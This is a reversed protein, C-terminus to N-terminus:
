FNRRMLGGNNNNTIPNNSNLGAPTFLGGNDNSSFTTVSESDVGFLCAKFDDPDTRAWCLISEDGSGMGVIGHLMQNKTLSVNCARYNNTMKGGYPCTKIGQRSTSPEFVGGPCYQNNSLGANRCDDPTTSNAPLYQGRNVTIVGSTEEEEYDSEDDVSEEEYESELICATYDSNARKGNPCQRIGDDVNLNVTLNGGSCYYWSPNSLMTEHSVRNRRFPNSANTPGPNTTYATTSTFEDPICKACTDSQKPLYYGAPCNVNQVYLKKSGIKAYCEQVSTAGEDSNPFDNPCKSILEHEADYLMMDCYYSGNSLYYLPTAAYSAWGCETREGRCYEILQPYTVAAAVGKTGDKYDAYCGKPIDFCTYGLLRQGDESIHQAYVRGRVCHTTLSSRASNALNSNVAVSPLPIAALAVIFLSYKLKM